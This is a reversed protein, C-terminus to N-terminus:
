CSTHWVTFSHGSQAATNLVIIFLHLNGCGRSIDRTLMRLPDSRCPMLFCMYTVSEQAAIILPTASMSGRRVIIAGYGVLARWAENHGEM